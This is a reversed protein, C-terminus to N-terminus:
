AAATELRCKRAIECGAIYTRAGDRIAKLHGTKIDRWTKAPSQRLLASAEPVPYRLAEHFQIAVAPKDTRKPYRSV